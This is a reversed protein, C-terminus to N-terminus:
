MEAINYDICGGVVKVNTYYSIVSWQHRTRGTLLLKEARKSLNTFWPKNKM